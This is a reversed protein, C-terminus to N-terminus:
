RKMQIQIATYPKLIKREICSKGPVIKLIHFAKNNFTKVLTKKAGYSTFSLESFSIWILFNNFLIEPLKVIHNRILCLEYSNCQLLVYCINEHM